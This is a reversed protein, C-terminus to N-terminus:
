KKIQKLNEVLVLNKKIMREKKLLLIIIIKIKKKIEKM